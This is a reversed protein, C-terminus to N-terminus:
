FTTLLEHVDITEHGRRGRSGAPFYMQLDLNQEETFLDPWFRHLDDRGHQLGFLKDVETNWNLAVTNRIGTAYRNSLEQKQHLNNEDFAPIIM